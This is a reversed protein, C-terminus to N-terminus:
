VSYWRRRLSADATSKSSRRTSATRRNRSCGSASPASACGSGGGARRRTGPCSGRATPARAGGRGLLVAADHGDAVGILAQDGARAHRHGVSRRLRDLLDRAAVLDTTSRCRRSGRRSPGARGRSRARGLADRDRERAAAPEDGGQGCGSRRSRTSPSTEGRAAAVARRHRATRDAPARGRCRIEINPYSSSPCPPLRPAPSATRGARAPEAAHDNSITLASMAATAVVAVRM